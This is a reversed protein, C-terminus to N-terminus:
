TKKIKNKGNSNIGRYGRRSGDVGRGRVIVM